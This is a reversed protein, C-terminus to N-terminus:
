QQHSDAHTRAVLIFEFYDGCSTSEGVGGEVYEYLVSIHESLNLQWVAVDWGFEFLVFFIRNMTM